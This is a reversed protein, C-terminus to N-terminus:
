ESVAVGRVNHGSYRSREIEAGSNGNNYLVQMFWSFPSGSDRNATWLIGTNGRGMNEGEFIWGGAPVFIKNGNVKSIFYAGDTGNCKGWAFTSNSLLTQFEAKTPMRLTHNSNEWAADNDSRSINSPFRVNNQMEYNDYYSYSNKTKTEGWTYYNGIAGPSQAGINCCSWKLGNGMDILHPHEGEPCLHAYCNNKNEKSSLYYELTANYNVNEDDYGSETLWEKPIGNLADEITADDVLSRFFSNAAFLGVSNSDTYGIFGSAGCQSFVLALSKSNKLSQCATTFILSTKKSLKKGSYYKLIQTETIARYTVKRKVGNRLECITQMNGTFDVDFLNGADYEISTLLYHKDNEYIGHTHLLVLDYEDLDNMEYNSEKLVVEFGNDELYKQLNSYLNKTFRRSEDQFTQNFILMKVKENERKKSIHSESPSLESKIAVSKSQVDFKDGDLLAEDPEPILHFFTWSWLSGNKLIVHMGNDDTFAKDVYDLRQIENACENLDSPSEAELYKDGIINSVEDWTKECVAKMEAETLEPDKVAEDKDSCSVIFGLFLFVNLLM